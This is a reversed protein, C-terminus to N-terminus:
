NAKPLENLMKVAEEVVREGTGPEAYSHLGTWTQYGGLKHAELDPLYGIWDNALEAIFTYRFPSREKIDRGLKTFFEAPVGVIAVDGILMVQLWTEREEGRHPALKERQFRFVEICRDAYDGMAKRCYSRVAEDEAAEDFTRVRFKFPRKIAALRTVPRPEGQNLTALVATKIRQIMEGTSLSLNHTSGSAGELFCVTGGLEAELEQAALGYFSPSRKAPQRTGITHTSHNFILAQPKGAFDRFALVPLDPDFPGTERVINTHPRTWTITEDALLRRSNQGVTPEQGLRFYFRSDALGANAEQVAKVIGRQVIQCFREDRSYGHITVTSPAHHTHTANVLVHSRPVGTTREIEAMVPDLLDRTLMLVDCGVIALKERPSKALVIAVARLSGEQGSAKVGDIMGGLIMSDDAEFNVAAAGVRLDPLGGGSMRHQREDRACGAMLSALLMIVVFVMVPLWRSQRRKNMPNVCLIQHSEHAFDLKFFAGFSALARM